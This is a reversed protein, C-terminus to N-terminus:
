KMTSYQYQLTQQNSNYAANSINDSYASINDQYIAIAKITAAIGVSLCIMFMTGIVLRAIGRKFRKKNMQKVV